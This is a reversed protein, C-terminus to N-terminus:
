RLEGRSCRSFNCKSNSDARSFIEHNEYNIQGSSAMDSNYTDLMSKCLTDDKSMALIYPNSLVELRKEYASKLCASDACRKRERLWHKQEKVLASDQGEPVKPLEFNFRRAYQFEEGLNEDLKSLEPDSCILKEVKSQAKDCDFSAAQASLALWGLVFFVLGRM